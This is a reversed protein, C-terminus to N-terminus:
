YLDICLTMYRSLPKCEHIADAASGSIQSTEWIWSLQINSSGPINPDLIATSAKVDDRTLVKFKNLTTEDAGLRVLATRAQCYVKSYHAVQDTIRIIAMRSRTWTGKSPALRMVHSYQFSKQAIADCLAALYRTAQKVQLVLEAKRFPHATTNHSSPLHLPIREPPLDLEPDRGELIQDGGSSDAEEDEDDSDNFSKEHPDEVINRVTSATRHLASHLSQLHILDTM